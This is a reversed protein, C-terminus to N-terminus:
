PQAAEKEWAAFEPSALLGAYQAEDSLAKRDLVQGFNRKFARLEDVAAKYNKQAMYAALRLDVLEAMQPEERAAEDALKLVGDYDKMKMLAGGRLFKLYPDGGVVAEVRKICEEAGKFDNEMFLLDVMLLDTSSEKGLIDPAARLAEKYQEDHKSSASLNMLAQLRIIFFSRQTKLEPPLGECISLVEEVKGARSAENIKVLLDGTRPDLRPMGFLAALSSGSNKSLMVGLMNRSEESATTAFIYNFMDMIQFGEGQPRVMLDVYSVAGEPTKVRLVVAPFGQRERARLFRLDGGVLNWLWGGKRQQIGKMFGSRIAGQNPLGAPLNDFVRSSFEENDVMGALKAVDQQNLVEALEEGFEVLGQKQAETLPPPPPLKPKMQGSKMEQAMKQIREYYPMAMVGLAALVAVVAGVVILVIWGAELGKRPAPPAPPLHQFPPPPPPNM